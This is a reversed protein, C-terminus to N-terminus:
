SPCLCRKNGGYRSRRRLIAACLARPCASENQSITKSVFGQSFAGVPLGCGASCGWARFRLSQHGGVSSMPPWEPVVGDRVLADM